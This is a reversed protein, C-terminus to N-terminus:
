YIDKEGSILSNEYTTSARSSKIGALYGGFLEVQVAEEIM